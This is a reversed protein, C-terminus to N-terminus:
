KGGGFVKAIVAFVAEWFSPKSPKAPQQLMPKIDIKAHGKAAVPDRDMLYMYEASTNFCPCAKAVNPFDRHGKVWQITPHMVKLERILKALAIKQAATRTDKPTQKGDNSVGGIYCIGITGTNHGKVHAGTKEIPRGEQITGDLLIIYHYGVSYRKGNVTVGWGRAKHWADIDSVDFHKGQPTASCHVVIGTLKRMDLEKSQQM